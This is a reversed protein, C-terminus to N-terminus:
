AAVGLFQDVLPLLRPAWNLDGNVNKLGWDFPDAMWAQGIIQAKGKVTGDSAQRGTLDPRTSLDELFTSGGTLPASSIQDLRNRANGLTGSFDTAFVVKFEALYDDMLAVPVDYDRVFLFFTLSEDPTSKTIMLPDLDILVAKSNSKRVIYNDGDLDLIVYGQRALEADAAAVSRVATKKTQESGSALVKGLTTGEIYEQFFLGQGDKFNNRQGEVFGYPKAAFGKKSWAEFLEVEKPHTFGTKAVMVKSSGDKFLVRILHVDRSGGSALFGPKLADGVEKVAQISKVDDLAFYGDTLVRITDDLETTLKGNLEKLFDLREPPHDGYRALMRDFGEPNFLPKGYKYTEGRSYVMGMVLPSDRMSDPDERILLGNFFEADRGFVDMDTPIDSDLVAVFSAARHSTELDSKQKKLTVELSDVLEQDGSKKAEALAEETNRVLKQQFTLRKPIPDLAAQVGGQRPKLTTEDVVTDLVRLLETSQEIPLIAELHEKLQRFVVRSQSYERTGQPAKQAAQFASRFVSLKDKLPVSPGFYGDLTELYYRKAGVGKAPAARLDLELEADDAAKVFREVQAVLAKPPKGKSVYLIRYSGADGPLLLVRPDDIAADFVQQVAQQHRVKYDADAKAAVNPDPSERLPRLENLDNKATEAVDTVIKTTIDLNDKKFRKALVKGWNSPNVIKGAANKLPEVFQKRWATSASAPDSSAKVPDAAQQAPTREAVPEENLKVTGGEPEVKAPATVPGDPGEAGKAKAAKIKVHLADYANAGLDLVFTSVQCINFIREGVPMEHWKTALDRTQTYTDYFGKALMTSLLIAGGVKLVPPGKAVLQSGYVVGRSIAVGVVEGMACSQIAEVGQSLYKFDKNLQIKAFNDSYFRKELIDTLILKQAATMQGVGKYNEQKKNLMSWNLAYEHDLFESAELVRRVATRRHPESNQSTGYMYLDMYSPYISYGTQMFVDGGEMAMGMRIFNERVDKITAGNSGASLCPTNLLLSDPPLERRKAYAYLLGLPADSKLCQAFTRIGLVDDGTLTTAALYIRLESDVSYRHKLRGFELHTSIGFRKHRQAAFYITNAVKEELFADSPTQKTRYAQIVASLVPNFKYEDEVQALSAVPTGSVFAIDGTKFQRFGVFGPLDACKLEYGQGDQRLPPSAIEDWVAQLKESSNDTKSLCDRIGAIADLNDKIRQSAVDEEYDMALVGMFVNFEEVNDGYLEKLFAHEIALQKLAKENFAKYNFDEAASATTAILLLFVLAPLIKKM